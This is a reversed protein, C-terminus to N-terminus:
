INARCGPCKGSEMRCKLYCDKCVLIACNCKFHVLIIKKEFCINCQQKIPTVKKVVKGCNYCVKYSEGDGEEKKLLSHEKCVVCECDCKFKGPKKKCYQCLQYGKELNIKQKEFEDLIEEKTLKKRSTSEEESSRNYVTYNEINGQAIRNRIIEQRVQIQKQKYWCFFIIFIALILFVVVSFIISLYNIKLKCKAGDSQYENLCKTCIETGDIKSCYRCNKDSCKLLCNKGNPEYGENCKDCKESLFSISCEICNEDSCTKNCINNVLKYLPNCEKCIASSQDCKNCQPDCEKVNKYQQAVDPDYDEDHNNQMLQFKKKKYLNINFDLKEPNNIPICTKDATLEYGSLCMQCIQNNPCLSCGNICKQCIGNILYYGPRCYLCEDQICELCGEKTCFQSNNCKSIFAIENDLCFLCENEYCGTNIIYNEIIINKTCNLGHCKQNCIGDKYYYGEICNNNSDPIPLAEECKGKVLKYEKKCKECTGEEESLCIECNIPCKPRNEETQEDCSNSTENYIYGDYCLLCKDNKCVACGNIDCFCRNDNNIYFGNKCLYCSNQSFYGTDCLACMFDSCPCTGDVLEYGEKCETCYGFDESSCTKCSYEFCSIKGEDCYIYSIFLFFIIFDFFYKM